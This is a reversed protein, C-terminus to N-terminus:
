PTEDEQNEEPLGIEFLLRSLRVGDMGNLVFTNKNRDPLAQIVLNVNLGIIFGTHFGEDEETHVACSAFSIMPLLGEALALTFESPQFVKKGMPTLLGEDALVPLTGQMVEETIPLQLYPFLFPLLVSSWLLDEGIRLETFRHWVDDANFNLITYNDAHLKAELQRSYILDLVALYVLLRDEELQLEFNLGELRPGNMLQVLLTDSVDSPSQNPTIVHLDEEERFTYAVLAHDRFGTKSFLETVILEKVSGLILQVSTKPKLISALADKAQNKLRSTEGIETPGVWNSEVLEDMFILNLPTHTIFDPIPSNQARDVDAQSVLQAMKESSIRLQALRNEDSKDLYEFVTSKKNQPRDKFKKKM